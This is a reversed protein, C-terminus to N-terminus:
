ETAHRAPTQRCYCRLHLGNDTTASPNRSAYHVGSESAASGDRACDRSTSWDRTSSPLREYSTAELDASTLTLPSPMPLRGSRQHAPRANADHLCQQQAAPFLGPCDPLPPGRTPSSSHFEVLWEADGMCVRAALGDGSVPARTAPAPPRTTTTPRIVPISIAFFFLRASGRTSATTAPGADDIWVGLSFSSALKSEGGRLGPM